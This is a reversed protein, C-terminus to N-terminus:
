TFKCISHAHAAQVERSFLDPHEGALGGHGLETFIKTTFPYGKEELESLNASLKKDVDGKIGYWLFMDTKEFLSYDTKKGILFYDQNKWSQWTAKGYLIREAEEPTRGTIKALFKKRRPGPHGMVAYFLGTFFFCYVDKGWKSKIDPYDRLSMGDAITTIITLREDALVEILIAKAEDAASQYTEAVADGHASLDPLLWRIDDSWLEPLCERVGQASSLMPHILIAAKSASPNYDHMKM